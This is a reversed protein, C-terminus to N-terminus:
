QLHNKIPKKIVEEIDESNVIEPHEMRIHKWREKSLRIKRGTKDIVEFINSMLSNFLRKNYISKDFDGRKM